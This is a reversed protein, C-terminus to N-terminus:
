AAFQSFCKTSPTSVPESIAQILRMGFDDGVEACMGIPCTMLLSHNWIGVQKISIGLLSNTTTLMPFRIYDQSSGVTSHVEKLYRLLDKRRMQTLDMLHPMTQMSDIFM